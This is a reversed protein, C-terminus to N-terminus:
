TAQGSSALALWSIETFVILEPSEHRWFENVAVGQNINLQIGPFLAYGLLLFRLPWQLIRSVMCVSFYFIVTKSCDGLNILNLFLIKCQSETLVIIDQLYSHEANILFCIDQFYTLTHLSFLYIKYKLIINGYNIRYRSCFSNSKPWKIINWM